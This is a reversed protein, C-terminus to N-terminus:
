HFVLAFSLLFSSARELSRFSVRARTIAELNTLHLHPISLGGSLFGDEVLLLFSFSYGQVLIELGVLEERFGNKTRRTQFSSSIM